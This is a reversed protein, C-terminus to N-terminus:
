ILVENKMKCLIKYLLFASGGFIVVIQLHTKQVKTWPKAVDFNEVKINKQDDLHLTELNMSSEKEYFIM